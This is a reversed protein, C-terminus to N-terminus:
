DNGEDSHISMFMERADHEDFEDFGVELGDGDDVGFWDYNRDRCVTMVIQEGEIGLAKAAAKGMENLANQTKADIKTM